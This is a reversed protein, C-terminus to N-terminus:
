SLYMCTCVGILEDCYIWSTAVSEVIDIDYVAVGRDIAREVPPQVRSDGVARRGEGISCLAVPQHPTAIHGDRNGSDRDCRKVEDGDPIGEVGEVVVM